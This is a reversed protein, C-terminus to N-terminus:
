LQLFTINSNDRSIDKDWMTLQIELSECGKKETLILLQRCYIITIKVKGWQEFHLHERMKLFSTKIRHWLVHGALVCLSKSTKKAQKVNQSERCLVFKCNTFQSNTFINSNWFSILHRYIILVRSLSWTVM